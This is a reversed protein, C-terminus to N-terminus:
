RGCCRKYKKGSGCPCPANRGVKPKSPQFPAVTRARAVKRMQSFRDRLCAHGCQDLLASWLRRTAPAGDIQAARIRRIHSRVHGLSRRPQQDDSLNIFQVDVEDCTCKPELCYQDHALYLTGDDDVVTLDFDYPFVESFFVLGDLQEPVAGSPYEPDGIQGRMRRWRERLWERHQDDDLCTTIWQRATDSFAGTTDDLLLDHGDASVEARLPAGHLEVNGGGVRKARNIELYMQTCSCQPNDCVMANVAFADVGDNEPPGFLLLPEGSDIRRRCTVTENFM